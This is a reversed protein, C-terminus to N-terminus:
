SLEGGKEKLKNYYIEFREKLANVSKGLSKMDEQLGKAEESLMETVPISKLQEMIKDLEAEKATMAAQYKKATAKLDEITMKDAEAKVEAIPKDEDVAAPKKGCGALATMCVALLLCLLTKEVKM